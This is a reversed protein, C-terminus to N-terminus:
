VYKKRKERALQSLLFEVKEETVNGEIRQGSDTMLTPFIRIKQRAEQTLRRLANEKGLDVIEIELDYRSAINKVLEIAAEQEESLVCEPRSRTETTSPYLPRRTYMRQIEVTGTVAKDSKVYLRVKPLGM